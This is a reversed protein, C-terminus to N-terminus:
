AGYLEEDINASFPEVEAIGMLKLIPDEQPDLDEPFLKRTEKTRLYDVFDLVEQLRNEPFKELEKILQKRIVRASMARMRKRVTPSPHDIVREDIRLSCFFGVYM